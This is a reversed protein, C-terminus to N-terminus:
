VKSTIWGEAKKLIKSLHKAEEMAKVWARNARSAEREVKSARIEAESAIKDVEKVGCVASTVRSKASTSM